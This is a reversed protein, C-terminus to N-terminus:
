PSLRGILQAVDDLLCYSAKDQLTTFTGLFFVPYTRQDAAAWIAVPQTSSSSLRSLSSKAGTARSFRVEAASATLVRSNIARSFGHGENIPIM